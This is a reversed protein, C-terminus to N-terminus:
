LTRPRSSRRFWSFSLIVCAAAYGLLNLPFSGLVYLPMMYLGVGASEGLYSFMVPLAPFFGARMDYYAWIVGSLAGAPLLAFLPLAGIQVWVFRRLRHADIAFWVASLLAFSIALAILFPIPHKDWYPRERCYGACWLIVPSHYTVTRLGYYLVIAALGSAAFVWIFTMGCRRLGGMLITRRLKRRGM